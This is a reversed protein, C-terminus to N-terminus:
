PLPAPAYAARFFGRVPRRGLGLNHEFATARTPAATDFAIFVDDRRGRNPDYVRMTVRSGEVTHDYALVQHNASLERPDRSSVTVVGLPVPTGRELDARVRPWQTRITRWALGHGLARGLVRYGPDSDPLNMWRYYRLVGAPLHWSDILRDVIFGYLRDGRAPRQTAPPVGARWHDLAAFTMGGCLGASADGLGIDGFPTRVVVVAPQSPWSNDFGFGDRSPAFTEAM